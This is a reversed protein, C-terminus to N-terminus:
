LHQNKYTEYLKSIEKDVKNLDDLPFQIDNEILYDSFEYVMSSLKINLRVFSSLIFHRKQWNNDKSRASSIPIM